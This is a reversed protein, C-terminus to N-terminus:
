HTYGIAQVPLFLAPVEDPVLPAAAQVIAQAIDTDVSLPLHPGHQETAALPLVAIVRSADMNAFDATGLASWFRSFAPM